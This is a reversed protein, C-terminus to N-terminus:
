RFRAKWSLLFGLREDNLLTWSIGLVSSPGSGSLELTKLMESSVVYCDGNPTNFDYVPTDNILPVPPEGKEPDGNRLAVGHPLENPGWNYLQFYSATVAQGLLVVPEVGASRLVTCREGVANIFVQQATLTAEYNDRLSLDNLPTLGAEAVRQKFSSGLIRERIHESLHEVIGTNPQKPVGFVYNHKYDEFQLSQEEADLRPVFQVDTVPCAPWRQLDFAYATIAKALLRVEHENVQLARLTITHEHLAVKRLRKMSCAVDKRAYLIQEETVFGMSSALYRPIFSNFDDSLVEQHLEQCHRAVSKLKDLDRWWSEILKKNKDIQKGRQAAIAVLLTAQAHKMQSLEPPNGGWSYIWGSVAPARNNRDLKEAFADIRHEATEVDFMASLIATTISDIDNMPRCYARGGSHLATGKILAAAFRLERCDAVPDPGANHILLLVVYLRISEWYRHIALSLAKGATEITIHEGGDCLFSQAEIWTKETLTLTVHRFQYQDYNGYRLESERNGWWKLFSDLLWASAVEDGRYVADLFMEASHEIHEAYVTARATLIGWEAVANVSKSKPIQIRLHGWSGVFDILAKEYVKSLPAPLTGSFLPAGPALSADAKQTWWIGLQYMLNTGVWMADIVLKEPKVPLTAAISAPIAAMRRFLRSDQEIHTVAIRGIERYPELWELDFSGEGWAYPSTGITAANEISGQNDSASALLLTKHLLLVNRLGDVAAGFRHLEASAQVESAMEELMKKTSLSLAGQRYPRYFFAAKILVREFQTLSPGDKVSCLIVQGTTTGGVIPPFSITPTQQSNKQQYLHARKCWSNVVWKLLHLHVDHLVFSGRLDRQVVPEGDHSLRFMQVQPRMDSNLLSTKVGWSAYPANFFIYQKVASALEARLVIDVGVRTYSHQQEEEQIFRITRSLFFGTLLVNAFFWAGNMVPLSVMQKAVFSPAIYPAVFYQAGMALLLGISSAGAPIVASDLIYVRMAVASHARRQLMLAIFSLVIPYVLAVLTAQVSWPVGTFSALDFKENLALRPFSPVKDGWYHGAAIYAIGVAVVGVLAAFIVPHDASWLLFRRFRGYRLIRLTANNKTWGNVERHAKSGASGTLWGPFWSLLWATM